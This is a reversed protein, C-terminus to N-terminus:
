ETSPFTCPGERLKRAKVVVEVLEFAQDYMLQKVTEEQNKLYNLAIM